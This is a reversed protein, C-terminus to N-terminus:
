NIVHAAKLADRRAQGRPLCSDARMGVINYYPQLAPKLKRVYAEETALRISESLLPPTLIQVEISTIEHPMIGFYKEPDTYINYAHVYLRRITRLSQGIYIVKGNVLIAYVAAMVLDEKSSLLALSPIKVQIWANGISSAAWLQAPHFQDKLYTKFSNVGSKM